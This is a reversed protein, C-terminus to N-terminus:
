RDFRSGPVVNDVYTNRIIEDGLPVKHRRLYLQISASLLFPSANVGFPIRTFRFIRLNNTSPPKTPDKLWLFRIADRESRQLRVQHFAKKVDATLLIRHLRARLLIGVLEPLLTLGQHLYDNLSDANRGKSSADFVVRLKTTSSFEKIVAQHPIYHVRSDDFVHEDVEEIFGSSLHDQFSKTYQPWM